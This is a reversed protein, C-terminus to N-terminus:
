NLLCSGPIDLRSSAYSTDSCYAMSPSRTLHRGSCRSLSTGQLGDWSDKPHLAQPQFYVFDAYDIMIM